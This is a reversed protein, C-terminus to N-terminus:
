PAYSGRSTTKRSRVFARATEFVHNINLRRRQAVGEAQKTNSLKLPKGVCYIYPDILREHFASENNSWYAQSM